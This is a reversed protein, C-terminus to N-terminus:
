SVSKRRNRVLYMMGVALGSLGALLIILGAVDVTEIGIPYYGIIGLIQIERNGDNELQLKYTGNVLVNFSDQFPSKTIVKTVVYSGHPDIVSAKVKDNNTYDTIQVSYIGNSNKSPNMDKSIVTQSGIALKQEQNALNEVTYQAQYFSLAIGILM